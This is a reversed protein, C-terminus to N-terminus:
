IRVDVNATRRLEQMSRQALQDLRQSALSQEIRARDIDAGDNKRM